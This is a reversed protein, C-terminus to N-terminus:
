DIFIMTSPNWGGSDFSQIFKGNKDFQYITGTNTYDTTGIYLYGTEEDMELFYINANILAEPVETLFSTESVEDIQTNCIFFSNVPNWNDDYTTRVCYLLKNDGETVKNVNSFVESLKKYPEELALIKDLTPQLKKIERESRTGFLKTFLGM